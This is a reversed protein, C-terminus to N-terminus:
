YESKQNNDLLIELKEKIITYTENVGRRYEGEREVEMAYGIRPIDKLRPHTLFSHPSASTWGSFNEVSVNVLGTFEPKEQELDIHVFAFLETGLSVSLYTSFREVTADWTEANILNPCIYVRLNNTQNIDYAIFEIESLIHANNKERFKSALPFGTKQDEEGIEGITRWSLKETKM